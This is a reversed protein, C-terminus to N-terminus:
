DSIVIGKVSSCNAMVEVGVISLTASIPNKILHTQLSFAHLTRWWYVWEALHELCILFYILSLEVWWEYARNYPVLFFRVSFGFIFLSNVCNFEDMKIWPSRAGWWEWHSPTHTHPLPLSFSPSFLLQCASLSCCAPLFSCITHYNNRHFINLPIRVVFPSTASPVPGALPVCTQGSCVFLSTTFVQALYSSQSQLSHNLPKPWSNFCSFLFIGSTHSVRDRCFDATYLECILCRYEAAEVLVSVVELQSASWRAACHHSMTCSVQLVNLNKSYMCGFCFLGKMFLVVGFINRLDVHYLKQVWRRRQSM